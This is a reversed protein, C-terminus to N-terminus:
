VRASGWVWFAKIDKCVRRLDHQMWGNNGYSKFIDVLAVDAKLKPLATCADDVVVEDLERGLHPKIRPLLWDVLEQNREILTLRKVQKRKSVEILQHGLGLGAVVVHGKAKKTGPRLTMMELPTLSMWPELTWEDTWSLKQHLSPIIVDDDFLVSGTKNGQATRLLHGKLLIKECYCFTGKPSRALNRRKGHRVNNSRLPQVKFLSLPKYTEAQINLEPQWKIEPCWPIALPIRRQVERAQRKRRAEIWEDPMLFDPLLLVTM